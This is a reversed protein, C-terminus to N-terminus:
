TERAPAVNSSQNERTLGTLVVHLRRLQSELGGEYQGSAADVLCGGPQIAVDAVLTLALARIRLEDGELASTPVARRLTEVDHPNMRVTAVTDARLQACVQEVFGFLLAPSAWKDGVLRCVSAFAVEGVSSEFKAWTEDHAATMAALASEIAAHAEQRKRDLDEELAVKSEERGVAYGEARAREYLTEAHSELEARVEKEVAVRLLAEATLVQSTRKDHLGEV